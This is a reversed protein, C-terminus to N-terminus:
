KSRSLWKKMMASLEATTGDIPAYKANYVLAKRIAIMQKRNINVHVKELTEPIQPFLEESLDVTGEVTEIPTEEIPVLATSTSESGDSLLLHQKTINQKNRIKDM